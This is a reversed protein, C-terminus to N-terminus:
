GNSEGKSAKVSKALHNNLRTIFDGVADDGMVAYFQQAQIVKKPASEGDRMILRICAQALYAEDATMEFPRPTTAEAVFADMNTM